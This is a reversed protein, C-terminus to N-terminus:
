IGENFVKTVWMIVSDSEPCPNLLLFNMKSTIEPAITPFYSNPFHSIFPFYALFPHILSGSVTM